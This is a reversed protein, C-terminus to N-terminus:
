DNIDPSSPTRLRLLGHLGVGLIPLCITTMLIRLIWHTINHTDDLQIWVGILALAVCALVVSTAYTRLTPRTQGATMALVGAATGILSIIILM